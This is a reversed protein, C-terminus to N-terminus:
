ARYRPWLTSSIVRLSAPTSFRVRVALSSVCMMSEAFRSRFFVIQKTVPTGPAPFVSAPRFIALQQCSESFRSCAINKDPFPGRTSTRRSANTRSSTELALNAPFRIMLDVAAALTFAKTCFMWWKRSSQRDDENGGKSRITMKSSACHAQSRFCVEAKMRLFLPMEPKSWDSGSNKIETMSRCVSQATMTHRIPLPWSILVPSAPIESHNSDSWREKGVQLSKTERM